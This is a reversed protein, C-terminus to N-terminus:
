RGHLRYYAVQLAIQIVTDPTYKNIRMIPRSYDNFVHTIVDMDDIQPLM